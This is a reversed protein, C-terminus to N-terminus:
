DHQMLNKFWTHRQSKKNRCHWIKVINFPDLDFPLPVYDFDRFITKSLRSPMSVIINTDRILAAVAAFSYASTVIKRKMGREHLLSDIETHHVHEYAMIAHPKACYQELTKPATQKKPNFFCVDQDTLIKTQILDSENSTLEPTLVLDVDGARLLSAWKKQTRAPAIHLHSLPAQTQFKEFKPKVITEIEYDNAAIVFGKEDRSPRYDKPCSFEQMALIIARAQGVLDSAKPTPAISRGCAVFLEDDVIKRLQNLGHSVTSQTVGMSAAAKTVSQHEYVCIFMRLLRGDLSSYDFNNM